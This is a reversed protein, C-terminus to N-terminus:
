GLARLLEILEPLKLGEVRLGDRTTVAFGSARDSPTDVVRVRRLRIPKTPVGKVHTAEVLWRRVSTTTVALERAVAVLPAGESVRRQAYALAARRVGEPLAHHSNPRKAILEALRKREPNEYKM